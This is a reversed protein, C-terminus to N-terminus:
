PQVETISSIVKTTTDFHVKLKRTGKSSEVTVEYIGTDAFPGSMSFDTFTMSPDSKLLHAEVASKTTFFSPGYASSNFSYLFASGILLIAIFLEIFGIILRKRPERKLLPSLLRRIGDLAILVSAIGAILIVIVLHTM